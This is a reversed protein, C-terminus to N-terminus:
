SSFEKALAATQRRFVALGSIAAGIFTALIGPLFGIIYSGPAIRARIVDDMVMSANRMMSGINIGVEQLYLSFGLGILTGLASGVLGVFFAEALLARYVAGKSEGIALRIGIEGYRRLSGMLGANWLVVSMALVFIGIVLASAANMVDVLSGFGSAKRLTAMEPDFDGASPHAANYSDALRTATRDDYQGHSFFGLVEDAADVMDLAQGIDAIDALLAGRDLATVGFRVTGSLTLNRVMISGNMTSGVLTLRDGPRVGLRRAFDDSIAVEGPASPLRGSALSQELRLLRYEPSGPTLDVAMGVVPSQTRTMGTSDPVDVLGGFRIRPTWIMDPHDRHLELLLRGVNLLALENSAGTGECGRARTTVQVHGCVFSATTNFVGGAVGRLYADLLVCLSVGIAVTLLPFLSRSRDRVLGKVLFSIM